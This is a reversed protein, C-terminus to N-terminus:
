PALLAASAIRRPSRLLRNSIANGAGKAQSIFSTRTIGSAEIEL